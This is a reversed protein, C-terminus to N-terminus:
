ATIEESTEEEKEEPPPTEGEKEKNIKEQEEQKCLALKVKIEEVDLEYKKIEDELKKKDEALKTKEEDTKEEEGAEKELQEELQKLINIYKKNSLVSFIASGYRQETLCKQNLRKKNKQETKERELNTVLGDPSDGLYESNLICIGTTNNANKPVDNYLEAPDYKHFNKKLIGAKKICDSIMKYEKDLLNKSFRNKLDKCNEVSFKVDEYQGKMFKLWIRQNDLCQLYSKEMLSKNEMYDPSDKSRLECYKNVLGASKMDKRLEELKEPTIPEDIEQQITWDIENWNNKDELPIYGYQAYANAEYQIKKALGYDDDSPDPAKDENIYNYIINNYTTNQSIPQARQLARISNIDVKKLNVCKNTSSCDAAEGLEDKENYRYYNKSFPAPKDDSADPIDRLEKYVCGFPIHPIDKIEKFNTYKMTIEQMKELIVPHSVNFISVAIEERLKDAIETTLWGEEKSENIYNHFDVRAPSSEDLWMNKEQWAAYEACRYKDLAMDSKGSTVLETCNKDECAIIERQKVAFAADEKKKQSDYDNKVMLNLNNDMTMFGDQQKYKNSKVGNRYDIYEDLSMDESNYPTEIITEVFLPDQRMTEFYPKIEEICKDQTEFVKEIETKPSHLNELEKFIEELQMGESKSIFFLVGSIFLLILPLIYNM